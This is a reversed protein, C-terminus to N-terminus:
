FKIENMAGTDHYKNSFASNRLKIIFFMIVGIVILVISIIQAMKIGCFMLSDTRLGEIFFRGISYWVLYAATTQGLKIYRNKRIFYLVFFGIFCWLSEYLFTPQYYAGNIFMGDIIFDPLHLGQLFTLTTQPGFAESNFFNGWRGIAQGLILSVALIDTMRFFPVKYKKCYLFICILGAIIGGHIALGGEWVKFIDLPNNGYYDLHFAVFYLRAGILAIPITWFFLNIMFDDPINWKRAERLALYGGILFAVFLTISYWYIHIPGIDFLIPNM